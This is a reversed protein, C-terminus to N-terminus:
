FPDLVLRNENMTNWTILNYLFIEIEFTFKLFDSDISFNRIQWVETNMGNTAKKNQKTKKEQQSLECKLQTVRYM